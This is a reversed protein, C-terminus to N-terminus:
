YGLKKKMEEFTTGNEKCINEAIQRLNQSNHNRYLNVANSFIPNIMMNQNQIAQQVFSDLDIKM